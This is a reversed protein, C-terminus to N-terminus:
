NMPPQQVDQQIDALEQLHAYLEPMEGSSAVQITVGDDQREIYLLAADRVGRRVLIRGETILNDLDVQAENQVVGTMRPPRSEARVIEPEAVPFGIMWLVFRIFTM